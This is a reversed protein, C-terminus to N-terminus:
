IESHINVSIQKMYVNHRLILNPHSSVSAVKGSCLYVFDEFGAALDEEALLSDTIDVLIVDVIACGVERQAAFSNHDGVGAEKLIRFFAGIAHTPHQAFLTTLAISSVEHVLDDSHRTLQACFFEGEMGLQRDNREVFLEAIFRYAFCELFGSHVM